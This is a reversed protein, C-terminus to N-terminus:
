RETGQLERLKAEAEAKTPLFRDTKCTLFDGGDGMVEYYIENDDAIRIESIIVKRIYSPFYSNSTKIVAWGKDNVKRPLEVLTGNEIKDKLANLECNAEFWLEGWREACEYPHPRPELYKAEWLRGDELKDELEQLRKYMPDNYEIQEKPRSIRKYGM